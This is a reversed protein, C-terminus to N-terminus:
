ALLEITGEGRWYIFEESESEGYPDATPQGNLTQRNERYFQQREYGGGGGVNVQFKSVPIGQQELSEKLEALNAQILNKAENNQVVMKGNLVGDVVTLRLNLRGLREPRLQMSIESKRSGIVIRMKDALQNILERKNEELRVSEREPREKVARGEIEYWLDTKIGEQGNRQHISETKLVQQKTKVNKSAAAGEDMVQKVANKIGYKQDAPRDLQNAEEVDMGKDQIKIMAPEKNHVADTHKEDASSKEYQQGSVHKMIVQTKGGEGRLPQPHEVPTDGSKQEGERSLGTKAEGGKGAGSEETEYRLLMKYEIEGGRMNEFPQEASLNGRIEDTETCEKHICCDMTHPIQPLVTKTLEQKEAAEETNKGTQMEMMQGLLGSFASSELNEANRAGKSQKGAEPIEVANEVAMTQM